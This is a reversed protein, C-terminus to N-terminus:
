SEVVESRASKTSTKLDLAVFDTCPSHTLTTPWYM